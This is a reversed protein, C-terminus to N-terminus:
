RCAATEPPWGRSTSTALASYVPPDPAAGSPAGDGSAGESTPFAPDSGAAEPGSDTRNSGVAPHVRIPEAVRARGGTARGPCRTRARIVPGTTLWVHEVYLQYTFPPWIVPRRIGFLRAPIM